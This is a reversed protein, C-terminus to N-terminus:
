YADLPTRTFTILYHVLADSAAGAAPVDGDIVAQMLKTHLSVSYGLDGQDRYAYWFRRCHTHLPRVADVAFPNKAAEALLRDFVQDQRLFGPLDEAKGAKNMAEACMRLAERQDTTAHRAAREAILRDLVRRTELLALHDTININAIMMGRRPLILVLRDAALRQLAERLPTRGIGLEDRLAVESLVQGPELALTVIREELLDYAQDALSM